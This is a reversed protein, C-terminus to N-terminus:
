RGETTEAAPAVPVRYQWDPLQDGLWADLFEGNPSEALLQRARQVDTYGTAACLNKALDGLALTFLRAGIPSRYYYERHPSASSIITIEHENLGLKLYADRVYDGRAEHNPLYIRGPCSELLLGCYPSNVIETLSQTCGVFGCNKKRVTRIADFLWEASVEDGLLAWFEDAFIWAPSGDLGCIISHLILETAPASARKGLGVLGRMEYVTVRRTTASEADGDFIHKWYTTYHRIIRRIRQQEGPILARLGSLTRVGQRRAERLCFAFEESQREDLEFKWRAFLREFWGFLWELGDPRDLLALPCLPPTDVAGTDRYDAQAGLLHALVFSSYDLDLWAIRANPVGLYACALTGLLSSKGTGTPGVILQNAVGNIHTPFYFPAKSGAGGCVLAAPTHAPYFPSDIYPLGPWHDAPLVLDAFNAGTILPRRVNSTGNAPWTAEIAEAANLDEIRAMIGISHCDRLLDRARLDARDADHDYVVVGITAWGFTMGAASAAIAANISALQEITDQDANASKGFWGKVTNWVTGLIERNWHKRELELQERADYPDLCIFRASVTMRGRHRLLMALVQPVTQAPYGTICLPRLHYGNIFPAMGGIFRECGVVENLRVSPDPLAAPYDHYTVAMLLDRFTEVPALRTLTVASAAADEFAAFRSLAYERLLENREQRQPGNSALMAARLWSKIPPEFQHTLYLRSLTIWHSEAAFQARREADVLAAARCPFERQPPEPAPQRHFLIQVMDNTGLHVFAAALQRACSAIDALTASEPSPGVLNYAVSIGNGRLDLAGDPFFNRYPLLTPLSEDTM